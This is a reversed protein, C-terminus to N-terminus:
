QIVKDGQDLALHQRMKKLALNYNKSASADRLDMNNVSHTLRKKPNWIVESDM